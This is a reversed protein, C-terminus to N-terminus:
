DVVCSVVRFKRYVRNEEPKRNSQAAVRDNGAGGKKRRYRSFRSAMGGFGFGGIESTKTQYRTQYRFDFMWHLGTCERVRFLGTKQARVRLNRLRVRVKLATTAPELGARSVM